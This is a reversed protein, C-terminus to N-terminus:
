TTIILIVKIFKKFYKMIEETNQLDDEVRKKKHNLLWLKFEQNKKYYDDMTLKERPLQKFNSEEESATSTKIESQQADTSRSTSSSSPMSASEHIKQKKSSPDDEHRRRESRQSAQDDHKNASATSRITFSSSVKSPQSSQDNFREQSHKQDTKKEHLSPSIPDDFKRYKKDQENKPM